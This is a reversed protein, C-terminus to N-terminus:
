SMLRGIEGALEMSSFGRLLMGDAGARRALSQQRASGVIVLCPIRPSTAKLERLTELSGGLDLDTDMLVFDPSRQQIQRFLSPADDAQAVDAVQPVTALLLLLSDRLRGPRAAVLAHISKERTM